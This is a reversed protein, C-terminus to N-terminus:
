NILEIIRKNVADSDYDNDFLTKVNKLLIEYLQQNISSMAEKLADGDKPAILIGDKGDNIIEPIGGWRTAIVPMGVSLAEIVIGPYGEGEWFSPFLLINYDALTQTVDKPNLLGCYKAKYNSFYESTYKAEVIPGYIDIVIDNPLQNSAKLILDVGKSEKLQSVFVFRKNYEGSVKHNNRKRVNPFWAVKCGEREFYKIMEQTECFSILCSKIVRLALRKRLLRQELCKHLNGGFQRYITPKNFLKAIFRMMPLLTLVGGRSSINVMVVRCRRMYMFAQWVVYAANRLSAFRGVYKNSSIHVFPIEEKCCYSIFNEMLVTTGGIRPHATDYYTIGGIILLYNKQM